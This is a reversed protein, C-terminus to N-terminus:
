TKHAQNDGISLGHTLTTSNLISRAVDLTATAEGVTFDADILQQVLLYACKEYQDKRDLLLKKSPKTTVTMDIPPLM